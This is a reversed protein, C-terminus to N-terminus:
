MKDKYSCSIHSIFDENGIINMSRDGDYSPNNIIYEDIDDRNKLFRSLSHPGTTQYVYRCKWKTYVEIKDKEKIQTKVYDLFELLYPHGKISQIIEMEYNKNKNTQPNAVIFSSSKLCKCKPLTDLDAYLGGYKHLILFRIIDVKMISFRVSNYLDIYDPYEKILEECDDNDWLIYQYGNREAFDKYANHSKKFLDNMETDGMIGFIQHIIM